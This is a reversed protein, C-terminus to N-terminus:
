LWLRPPQPARHLLKFLIVSVDDAVDDIRLRQLEGPLANGVKWNFAMEEMPLSLNVTMSILALQVRLRQSAITAMVLLEKTCAQCKQHQNVM